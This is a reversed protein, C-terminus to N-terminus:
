LLILLIIDIAVLSIAVVNIAVRSRATFNRTEVDKSVRGLYLLFHGQVKYGDRGRLGRDHDM